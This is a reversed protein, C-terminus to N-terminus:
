KWRWRRTVAPLIAARRRSALRPLCYPLKFQTTVTGQEPESTHQTERHHTDLNQESAPCNSNALNLSKEHENAVTAELDQVAKM